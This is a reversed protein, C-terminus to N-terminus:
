SMRRDLRLGDEYKRGFTGDTIWIFHTSLKGGRAAQITTNLWAPANIESATKNGFNEPFPQPLSEYFSQLTSASALASVGSTILEQTNETIMEETSSTLPQTQGNGFKIYDLVGQDLAITACAQKAEYVSKYVTDSSYV